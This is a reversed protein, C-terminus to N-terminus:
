AVTRNCREYAGLFLNIWTLPGVIGDAEIGVHRQFARVAEITYGGYGTKYEANFRDNNFHSIDEYGLLIQQLFNVAEGDDGSRLIPFEIYGEIVALDGAGNNASVRCTRCFNDGLADWTKSNVVGDVELRDTEMDLVRNRQEQFEIVANMTDRDFIGDIEAQGIDIGYSILLYQLYGVAPGDSGQKLIPITKAETMNASRMIQEEQIKQTM